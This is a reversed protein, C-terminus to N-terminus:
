PRLQCRVSSCVTRRWHRMKAKFSSFLLPYNCYSQEDTREDCKVKHTTYRKALAKISLLSVPATNYMVHNFSLSTRLKRSTLIEIKFYPYYM